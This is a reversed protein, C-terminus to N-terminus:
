KDLPLALMCTGIHPYDLALYAFHCAIDEERVLVEDELLSKSVLRGCVSSYRRFPDLAQQSPSLCAFKRVLCFTQGMKENDTGRAHSFIREIRGAVLDDEGPARFLVYSNSISSPAAHFHQGLRGIKTRFHVSRRIFGPVAGVTSHLWDCLKAYTPGDLRESDAPDWDVREQVKVFTDSFALEDNLRTGRIETEFHHKFLPIIEVLAPPILKEDFLIRTNQVRCFSRFM